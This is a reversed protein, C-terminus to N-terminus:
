KPAGGAKSRISNIYTEKYQEPISPDNRVKEIQQEPTLEDLKLTGQVPGSSAPKEQAGSGCGVALAACAVLFLSGIRNKM